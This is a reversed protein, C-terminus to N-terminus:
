FELRGCGHLDNLLACVSQAADKDTFDMDLPREGWIDAISLCGRESNAALAIEWKDWREIVKFM